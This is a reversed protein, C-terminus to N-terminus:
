GRRAELRRLEVLLLRRAVPNAELDILLEAMNPMLDEAHIVGIARAREEDPLELIRILGPIPLFPLM